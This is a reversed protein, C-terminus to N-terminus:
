KLKQALKQFETAIRLLIDSTSEENDISEIDLTLNSKKSIFTEEFDPFMSPALNQQLKPLNAENEQTAKRKEYLAYTIESGDKQIVLLENAPVVYLNYPEGKSNTYEKKEYEEDFYRNVRYKLLPRDSFMPRINVLNGNTDNVNDCFEVYIDQGKELESQFFQVQRGQKGKQFFATKITFFPDALGLTKFTELHHVFFENEKTKRLTM